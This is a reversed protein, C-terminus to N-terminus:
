HRVKFTTGMYLTIARPDFGEYIERLRPITGKIKQAMEQMRKQIWRQRDTRDDISQIIEKCPQLSGSISGEEKVLFM